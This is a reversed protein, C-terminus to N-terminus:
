MQAPGGTGPNPPRDARFAGQATTIGLRTLETLVAETRPAITRGGARFRRSRATLEARSLSALQAFESLEDVTTM